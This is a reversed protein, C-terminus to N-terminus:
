NEYGIISEVAAIFEDSGDPIRGGGREADHRQLIFRASGNGSSCPNLGSFSQVRHVRHAGIVNGLQRKCRQRVEVSALESAVQGLLGLMTNESGGAKQRPRAKDKPKHRGISRQFKGQRISKYQRRQSFAMVAAGKTM